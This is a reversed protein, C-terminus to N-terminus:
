MRELFMALDVGQTIKTPIKKGGETGCRSKIWKLYQNVEQGAANDQVALDVMDSYTWNKAKFRDMENRTKGWESMSKCDKPLPVHFNECMHIEHRGDVADVTDWGEADTEYEMRRKPADTMSGTPEKGEWALEAMVDQYDRVKRDLIHSQGNKAARLMLCMATDLEAESLPTSLSLKERKMPRQM